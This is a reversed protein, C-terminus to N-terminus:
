EGTIIIHNIASKDRSSLLDLEDTFEAEADEVTVAKTPFLMTLEIDTRALIAQKRGASAALVAGDIVEITKEAGYISASGHVILMTAIKIETGTILTGAPIKATRAYMGGHIIHTTEIAVQPMARIMTEVGRVKEISKLTSAVRAQQVVLSNM